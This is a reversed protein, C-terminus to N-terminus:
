RSSKPHRVTDGFLGYRPNLSGIVNSVVPGSHFGVRITIYGKEPQDPDIAIRSAEEVMDMAFEAACKVHNHEQQNSLNTVGMYADSCYFSLSFLILDCQRTM